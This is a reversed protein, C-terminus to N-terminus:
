FMIELRLSGYKHNARQEKFRKYEDSWIYGFSVYKWGIMAGVEIEYLFRNITAGSKAGGFSNGEIFIDRGVISGRVGFFAYVKLGSGVINQAFRSHLKQMGFDNKIGYGVRFKAGANIATLANGLSIQVSPLVDFFDEIFVWRWILGYHLNILAENKITGVDWGFVERNNTIRHVGNQVQKGFAYPGVVGLDLSFQEMFDRTRSIFSLNAYLGAGFLIDNTPAKFEYDYKKDPTYLEQNISILFRTFHRDQLHSFGAIYNLWSNEFEPSTYSIFHGGTYYEDSRILPEFYVDNESLITIAHNRNPAFSEDASLPMTQLALALFLIAIRSISKITSQKSEAIRRIECHRIIASECKIRLRNAFCIAISTIATHSKYNKTFRCLSLPSSDTGQPSKGFRRFQMGWFLNGFWRM